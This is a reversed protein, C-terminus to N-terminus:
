SNFMYAIVKNFDAYWSFTSFHMVNNVYNLHRLLINVHICIGMQKTWGSLSAHEAYFQCAGNHIRLRMCVQKLVQAESVSKNEKRPHRDAAAGTQRIFSSHM